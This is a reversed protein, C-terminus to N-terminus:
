VVSNQISLFRQLKRSLKRDPVVNVTQMDTTTNSSCAVTSYRHPDKSVPLIYVCERKTFTREIWSKQSQVSGFSLKLLPLFFCIFTFMLFGYFPCACHSFDFLMTDGGRITLSSCKWEMGVLPMYCGYWLGRFPEWRLGASCM